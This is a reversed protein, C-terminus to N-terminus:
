YKENNLQAGFIDYEPIFIFLNCVTHIAWRKLAKIINNAVIHSYTYQAQTGMRHTYYTFLNLSIDQQLCLNLILNILKNVKCLNEKERGIIIGYFIVVVAVNLEFGCILTQRTTSYIGIGHIHLLIVSSSSLHYSRNITGHFWLLPPTM